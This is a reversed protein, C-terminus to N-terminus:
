YGKGKGNDWPYTDARMADAWSKEWAVRKIAQGSWLVNLQSNGSNRWLLKAVELSRGMERAAQAPTVLDYIYTEVLGVVAAANPGTETGNCAKVRATYSEQQRVMKKALGSLYYDEAERVAAEAVKKDKAIPYQVIGDALIARAVVDDFPYVGGTPGHCSICKYANIVSREKIPDFAGPRLDIAIAQPVVAVQKGKGDALYYWHLGNPLTGIVERGDQKVTGALFDLVSKNGIDDVAFDFTRWIFRDDHGYLSPILQLERNHLAVVSSLVAGGSRLQPDADVLKRNVGFSKYLDVETPPFLLAQSYYGGNAAELLLRPLLWDARLIAMASGTGVRLALDAAPDIWGRVIRKKADTGDRKRTVEQTVLFYPDDRVFEEWLDAKFKSTDVGQGKLRAIRERRSDRDWGLAGLDIRVVSPSIRKPRFLSSRFSTSNLVFTLSRVFSDREEPPIAALSLWRSDVRLEAPLRGLDVFAALHQEGPTEGVPARDPDQYAALLSALMLWPM